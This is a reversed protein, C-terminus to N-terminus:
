SGDPLTICTGEVPKNLVFEIDEGRKVLIKTDPEAFLLIVKDGNRLSIPFDETVVDYGILGQSLSYERTYVGSFGFHSLIGLFIKLAVIKAATIETFNGLDFVGRPNVYLRLGSLQILFYSGGPKIEPLSLSSLAKEERVKKALEASHEDREYFMIYFGDKLPLKSNSVQIAVDPRVSLAFKVKGYDDIEQFLYRRTEIVEGGAHRVLARLYDVISKSRSLQIPDQIDRNDIDLLIKKGHLVGRFVPDLFVDVGKGPVLELVKTYFGQKSFLVEEKEVESHREIEFIGFEESFDMGGECSVKVGRLPEKTQSNMVFGFINSKRRPLNEAVLKGSFNGVTFSLQVEDMVGKLLIAFSGDEDSELRKARVLNEFDIEPAEGRKKARFGVKPVDLSMMMGKPVPNMRDDFLMIKVLQHGTYPLIRAVFYQPEKFIQIKEVVHPLSSGDTAKGLIELQCEGGKLFETYVIVYKKKVAYWPIETDNAKVKLSHYDPEKNFKFRVEGERLEYGEYYTIGRRTYDYIADHIIDAVKSLREYRSLRKEEEINSLYSVELLVRVPVKSKLVTYRSPIPAVCPIDFREKFKQYLVEALDRSPGTEEFPYYIETQNLNGGLPDANFHVSIFIDAENEEAFKIRADLSLDEDENRTLLVQFKDNFKRSLIKALKLNLDKELTGSSGTAGKASGGHGPDIVLVIKNSRM